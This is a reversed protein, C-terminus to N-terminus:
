PRPGDLPWITGFPTESLGYGIMVQVGFRKEIERHRPEPHAPATYCLRIRHDREAPSVPQRMLIEVMAGIANFETAGFRKADSWFSSASFRELLILRAGVHMASLTSYLQANLHFLPLPTLMRDESTLGMWWPFAEAALLYSRHSQIVLKPASTTG